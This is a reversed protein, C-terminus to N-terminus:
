RSSAARGLWVGAGGSVSVTNASTMVPRGSGKQCQLGAPVQTHTHAYLHTNTANGAASLPPSANGAWQNFVRVHCKSCARMALGRACCDM